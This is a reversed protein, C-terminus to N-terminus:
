HLIDSGSAEPSVSSRGARLPVGQCGIFIAKTKTAIKTSAVLCIDFKRSSKASKHSLMQFSRAFSKVGSRGNRM